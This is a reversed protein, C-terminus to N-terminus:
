DLTADNTGKDVSDWNTIKLSQVTLGGSTLILTYTYEKKGEFQLSGSSALKHNYKAGNYTVEFLTQGNLNLTQPVIIIANGNTEDVTGFDIGTSGVDDSPTGLTIETATSYDTPMTLGITKNVNLMKITAGTISTLGDGPQLIVKIKTLQHVFTLKIPNANKATEEQKAFMLDSKKYANVTSQDDAVTFTTADNKIDYSTESSLAPYFAYALVPQGSTPYYLADSPTDPSMNGNADTTKFVVLGSNGYTKTTGTGGTKEFLYVNIYEDQDFQTGQINAAAKTTVAGVNAQIRIPTDEAGPQSIVHDNSCSALAVLVACASIIKTAKM